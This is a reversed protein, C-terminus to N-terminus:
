SKAGKGKILIERWTEPRAAPTEWGFMSGHSMAMRTAKDVGLKLNEAEIWREKEDITDVGIPQHKYRYYGMEGANIRVIENTVQNRDFCTAPLRRINEQATM